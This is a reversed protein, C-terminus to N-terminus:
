SKKGWYRIYRGLAADAYARAEDYSEFHALLKSGRLVDFGRSLDINSM